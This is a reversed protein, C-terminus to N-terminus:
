GVARRRGVMWLHSSLLNSALFEQFPGGLREWDDVLVQKLFGQDELSFQGGVVKKRVLEADLKGPTLVEVVDFGHTTLLHGLSEPHFYNLHGPGDVNDSLERLTLLDFGRINPVTLILLGGAPLLRACGEILNKPAFLHEAVEFGTVVDAGELTVDEIPLEIVNLGKHRCTRALGRSPEIAIVREFYGLKQAEECFTGFGAGVDILLRTGSSYKKCLDLVREARPRFITNRRANESAPFIKENWHQQSKGTSYYEDLLSLPPRPNIYVTGCEGCEEFDFGSKEFVKSGKAKGCAPCDVRM